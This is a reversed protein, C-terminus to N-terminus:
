DGASREDAITSGVVATTAATFPVCGSLYTLTGAVLFAKLLSQLKM